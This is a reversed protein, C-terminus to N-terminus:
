AFDGDFQGVGTNPTFTGTVTRDMSMVLICPNTPGTCDGSWGTFASGSAATAALSVTAGDAYGAASPASVFSGSGAGAKSLTLSRLKVEAPNTASNDPCATLLLIGAGVSLTRYRMLSHMSTRPHPVTGLIFM